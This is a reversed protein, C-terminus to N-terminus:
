TNVHTWQTHMQIHMYVHMYMTCMTAIFLYVHVHVHVAVWLMNQAHVTGQGEHCHVSHCCRETLINVLARLTSCPAHWMTAMCSAVSGSTLCDTLCTKWVLARSETLGVLFPFFTHICMTIQNVSVHVHVITYIHMCTCTYICTYLGCTLVFAYWDVTISTYM